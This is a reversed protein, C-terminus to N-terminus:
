AAVPDDPFLKGQGVDPEVSVRRLVDVCMSLQDATSVLLKSDGNLKKAARLTEAMAVVEVASAVLRELRHRLEKESNKALLKKDIEVVVGKKDAQYFTHM